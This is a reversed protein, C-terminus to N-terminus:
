GLKQIKNSINMAMTRYVNAMYHGHAAAGPSPAQIARGKWHKEMYEFTGKTYSLEATLLQCEEAWRDHNM